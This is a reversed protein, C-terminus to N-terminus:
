SVARRLRRRLDSARCFLLSLINNVKTDFAYVGSFFSEVWCVNPDECLDVLVGAERIDREMWGVGLYLAHDLRRASHPGPIMRSRGSLRALRPDISLKFSIAALL